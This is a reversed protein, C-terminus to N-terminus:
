DTRVRYIAVDSEAFENSLFSFPWHDFQEIPSTIIYNVHNESLAAPADPVAYALKDVIYSATQARPKWAVYPNSFEPQCTVVVKRDAPGVISLDLDGTLSLFVDGPNTHSLIWYYADIYAKREQFGIAQDRATTFDFRKVYSPFALAVFCVVGLSLVIRKSRPIPYEQEPRAAIKVFFKPLLDALFRSTFVLGAGFFIDGVAQLYFLFHHAPVFMLHLNPSILQQVENLALELYCVGVWTLLLIKRPRLSRAVTTNVFGVTAVLVFWSLGSRLFRGLKNSALPPYVWNSPVPNVVRLHYHFLISFTFPLSVIFAVCFAILLGRLEKANLLSVLSRGCHAIGNALAAVLMIIGLIVAPATHGLFTIGLLIGTIVHWRWSRSRLAKAYSAVALYFFGQALNQSFIWPSYSAAAWSPADGIPAFLFAATAALAVWHDFLSLLLIYFAIPALLNLYPGARTVVLHPPVGAVHSVTAALTSSLPNYWITEGAYLHDTGYRHDLVSQAMGLERLQDVDYPWHLDGTTQIGKFLTFACLLILGLGAILNDRNSGSEKLLHRV